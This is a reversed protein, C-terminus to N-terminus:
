VGDKENLIRVESEILADAESSEANFGMNSLLARVYSKKDAGADEVGKFIQEAASVAVKIWYALREVREAGYRKVALPIVVATMIAVFLSVAAEFVTTMDM